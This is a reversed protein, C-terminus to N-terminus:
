DEDQIYGGKYMRLEFLKWVLEFDRESIDVGVDMMSTLLIGKPTLKYREEESDKKQQEM